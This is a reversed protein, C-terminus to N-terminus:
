EAMMANLVPSYRVEYSSPRELNKLGGPLRGVQESCRSRAIAVGEAESTREGHQMRTVLLPEGHDTENDFGITDGAMLGNADYARWVQKRGPLDKKKESRKHVARGAYEHLKYACDLYALDASTDVRSGVGFGDIPAGDAALTHIRHEDIGGSVLIRTSTLGADDLIQRVRRAHAALDGSDIRVGKIDIGERALEPAIEAVRRAGNAVDYTDILLVVNDPHSRAFNRFADREDDHALVFSHAMTGSVPVGYRAGALCTATADFGAIYASRAAWLGAEGGHARRLGFDVLLRSGAAIRSRVAKSALLTQTHLINMLRSEVLQAEALPAIVQFVPEGPFAITGEPVARVTGGFRWDAMANVFDDSFHGCERLWQCEAQGFRAQALWDLASEVGATVFFPRREGADRIFFEFVAESDMGQDRFSALMTLEYLDTLLPTTEIDM